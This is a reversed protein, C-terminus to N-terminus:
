ESINCHEARENLMRALEERNIPKSIYANMGADLCQQRDDAMAGATMAIIYPRAEPPWGRLIARTAELGDMEPMQVDMLVIDYAQRKLAELVRLGNEALDAQYGMNKLMLLAVKQNVQNDEALLIRLSNKESVSESPEDATGQADEKEQEAVGCLRRLVQHLRAPKLPLSLCADMEQGTQLTRCNPSLLLLPLLGEGRHAARVKKLLAPSGTEVQSAELVLIDWQGGQSIQKLLDLLNESTKAEMGWQTIQNWVIDRNNRNQMCLMLHRGALEADHQHLYGYEQFEVAGARLTFHFTSGQGPVSEVWIRGGMLACLSKSITLGLGTGGYHRTTSADVQTFSDFLKEQSEPPIGIGTDSVAGHLLHGSGSPSPPNQGALSFRVSIEGQHTFKVANSLLNTLIQRLRTIDGSLSEPVGEDLRYSLNIGKEAASNAVLDLAEEVCNRLSFPIKELELRGAEIKSLDLIDNILTLLTEGSARITGIYDRQEESLATELLLGTMGIVANMPTRIEHSMNALFEARSKAAREATERAEMLEEQVADAHQMTTDLLLELDAKESELLAIHQRLNEIEAQLAHESM